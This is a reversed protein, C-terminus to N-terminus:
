TMIGFDRAFKMMKGQEDDEDHRPSPIGWVKMMKEPEIYNKNGGFVTRVSNILDCMAYPLWDAITYRRLEHLM